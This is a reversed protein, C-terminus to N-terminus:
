LGQVATEAYELVGEELYVFIKKERTFIACRVGVAKPEGVNVGTEQQRGQTVTTFNDRTGGGGGEGAVILPTDDLLTVFSGGGGGGPGPPFACTGSEQGVLIKLQTGQYVQFTGSIKAGLGGRRWHFPSVFPNTGNAGSAGSAEIVYNGTM